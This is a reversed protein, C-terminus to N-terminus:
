QKCQALQIRLFTTAEWWWLWKWCSCSKRDFNNPTKQRAANYFESMELWLISDFVSKTRFAKMLVTQIYIFVFLEQNKQIANASVLKGDICRFYYENEWVLSLTIFFRIRFVWDHQMPQSIKLFMWKTVKKQADVKKEDCVDWKGEIGYLGAHRRVMKKKCRRIIFSSVSTSVFDFRRISVSCNWHSFLFAAFM